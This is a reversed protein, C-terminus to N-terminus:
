RNDACRKRIRLVEDGHLERAVSLGRTEKVKPVPVKEGRGYNDHGGNGSIPQSRVAMGVPLSFPQPRRDTYLGVLPQLLSATVQFTLTILGIQAFSLQFSAKLVPYIAPILSQITDNLLHSFSAAV